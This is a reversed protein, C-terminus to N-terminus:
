PERTRSGCTPCYRGPRLLPSDCVPCQRTGLHEQQPLRPRGPLVFLLVIIVTIATGTVYEARAWRACAILGTRDLWAVITPLGALGLLLTLVTLVVLKRSM